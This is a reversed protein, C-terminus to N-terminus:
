STIRLVLYVLCTIFLWRDVLLWHCSQMCLVCAVGRSPPSGVLNSKRSRMVHLPTCSRHVTFLFIRRPSSTQPQPQSLELSSLKIISHKPFLAPSSSRHLLPAASLEGRDFYTSQAADQSISNRITQTANPRTTCINFATPTNQYQHVRRRRWPFHASTLTFM